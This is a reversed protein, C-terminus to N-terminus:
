GGIREQTQEYLEAIVELTFDKAKGRWRASRKRPHCSCSGDELAEICSDCVKSM